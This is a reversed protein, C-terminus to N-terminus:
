TVLDAISHGPKLRTRLIREQQAANFHRYKLKGRQPGLQQETVRLWSQTAPTLIKTGGGQRRMAAASLQGVQQRYANVARSEHQAKPLIAGTAGRFASRIDRGVERAIAASDRSLIDRLSSEGARRNAGYLTSAILQAPDPQRQADRTRAAIVARRVGPVIHRAGPVGLAAAGVLGAGLVGAGMAAVAGTSSFRGKEDRKIKSEDFGAKALQKAFRKNSLNFLNM